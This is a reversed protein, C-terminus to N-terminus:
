CCCDRFASCNVEFEGSVILNENMGACHVFADTWLDRLEFKEAFYLIALSHDACERFDTYEQTDLYALIEAQNELKDPRYVNMRDLLAVLAEGLRDGVIPLDFM